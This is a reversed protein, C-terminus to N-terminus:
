LNILCSIVLSSYLDLFYGIVRTLKQRLILTYQKNEREWGARHGMSVRWGHAHDDIDVAVVFEVVRGLDRSLVEPGLIRVHVPALWDHEPGHGTGSLIPHTV